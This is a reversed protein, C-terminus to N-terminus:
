IRIVFNNAKSQSVDYSYQLPSIPALDNTFQIYEPFSSACHLELSFGEFILSLRSPEFYLPATIEYAKPNYYLSIAKSIHM